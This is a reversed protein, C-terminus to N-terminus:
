YKNKSDRKVKQKLNKLLLNEKELKNINKTLRKNDQEQTKLSNLANKLKYRIENLIHDKRQTEDNYQSKLKKNENRLKSSTKRELELLETLGSIKSLLATNDEGQGSM